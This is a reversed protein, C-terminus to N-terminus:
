RWFRQFDPGRSQPPVSPPDMRLVVPDRFSVGFLLGEGPYLTPILELAAHEVSGSAREVIKLDFDNTMRHVIFTGMQSLVDEPIDRPRQTALCINLSYKRGEKAILGFSDIPYFENSDKIHASLFHHAEDLVLLLPANLFNGKRAIELIHRGIANALIERANHEFPLYKLSIRLIRNSRDNLFEDLEEFISPCADPNFISRLSKSQTIDQIKNILPVCSTSELSNPGGWVMPEVPSSQPDVCENQIQQTLYRIDFDCEPSELVDMYARREREFEVKSRHAKMIVGNPALIPCVRALKLSQIASRLKPAQNAGSPKFIAFLDSERLHYYPVTVEKANSEDGAGTGVTVHHVPGGLTHFEGSADFLIIKSKFKSSEQILHALTWSKGAGTAGLVTLHRGFLAEPTCSIKQTQDDRESGLTIYLAGHEKTEPNQKKVIFRDSDQSSFSGGNTGTSDKM